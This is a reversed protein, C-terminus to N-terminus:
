GNPENIRALPLLFSKETGQAHNISFLKFLPFPTFIHKTNKPANNNYEYYQPQKAEEEM